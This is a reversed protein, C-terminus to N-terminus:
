AVDNRVLAAFLEETEMVYTHKVSCLIQGAFPFFGMQENVYLYGNM